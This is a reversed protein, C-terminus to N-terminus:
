KGTSEYYRNRWGKIYIKRLFVITQANIDAKQEILFQLIETDNNGAAYHLATRGL